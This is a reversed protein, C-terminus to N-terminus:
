LPQEMKPFLRHNLEDYSAHLLQNSLPTTDVQKGFYKDVNELNFIYPKHSFTSAVWQWSLNNSAPDGDLLNNLFWRAGAQWKIRRFHVIYAALYMRAHNHIYGTSILENIFHDLCALGTTGNIIDRPLEDAYDHASYGTKYSEIDSWIWEPNKVYIRQWFDRWGLEQIFKKIRLPESCQTLAYNRVENLSLIGHRIYPSLRTIHGDGFNRTREYLIPNIAQLKEEAALRGGSIESSDGQAWPALQKVYNILAAHNEFTRSLVETM